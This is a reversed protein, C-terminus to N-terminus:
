KATQCFGFAWRQSAIERDSPRMVMRGICVFRAEIVFNPYHYVIDSGRNTGM